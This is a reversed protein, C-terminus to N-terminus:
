RRPIRIGRNQVKQTGVTNVFTVNLQARGPAIGNRLNMIVIARDAEFNRITRSQLTVGGRRVRLVIRTLDEDADITVRLQRIARRPGTRRFTTTVVSAQVPAAAFTATVSQAQTMSVTCTGTGTCGAGEWGEFLFQPSTQATLVVQTGQAFSTTCTTPCEIGEPNSSVGGTGVVTVTLPFTQTDFTATVSQAANMTVVCAGTGTCAGSWGAFTSGTAPTPTLTIVSGQAYSESCDAGCDIGAPASTVTGQGSGAKLVTLPFTNPALAFTATAAVTDTANNRQGMDVECFISLGCGSEIAAEPSVTWGTFTSGAAAVATMEPTDPTGFFSSWSYETSCTPTCTRVVLSEDPYIVSGSGAGALTIDLTAEITFLGANAAPSAALAAAFAGVLTLLLLLRVRRTRSRAENM